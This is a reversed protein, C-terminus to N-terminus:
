RKFVPELVIKIKTQKQKILQMLLKVASSGLDSINQEVSPLDIGLMSSFALNDYGVVKIDKPVDIGLEKLRKILGYAMLDNSAFIADVNKDKYFNGAEYGSQYRFDGEYILSADFIKQHKELAKLYGKYRFQGNMSSPASLCGIRQYGENILYETAFYGGLQNDFYVQPDNDNLFTRDVFVYPITLRSLLKRYEREHAESENSITLLLGDVGRSELNKILELDNKYSDDSNVLVLSYGNKRLEDEVKKALASFFLNEIDPILLGITKSKKTVLNRATLNPEYNYEKALRKIEEKKLESIRSPKDNLVLSVTTVSVSALRALEKITMKM